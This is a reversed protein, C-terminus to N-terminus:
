DAILPVFRRNSRIRDRLWSAAAADLPDFVNFDQLTILRRLSVCLDAISSGGFWITGLCVREGRFNPHFIPTQWIISPPEFPFDSGLVVAFQHTNRRYVAGSAQRELGPVRWACEYTAPPLGSARFAFRSDDDALQTMKRLENELRRIVTM